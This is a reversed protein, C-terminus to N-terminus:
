GLVVAGRSNLAIVFANPVLPNSTTINASIADPHIPHLCAFAKERVTTFKQHWQIDTGPLM